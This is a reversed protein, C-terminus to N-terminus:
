VKPGESLHGQQVQGKGNAVAATVSGLGGKRCGATGAKRLCYTVSNERSSDGLRPPLEQNEVTIKKLEKLKNRKQVHFM